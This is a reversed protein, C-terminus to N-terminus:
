LRVKAKSVESKSGSVRALKKDLKERERNVIWNELLALSQKLISNQLTSTSTSPAFVLDLFKLHELLIAGSRKKKWSAGQELFFQFLNPYYIADWLVGGRGQNIKAGGDLLLHPLEFVDFGQSYNLVPKDFCSPFVVAWQLPTLHLFNGEFNVKIGSSVLAKTIDNNFSARIAMGLLKPFDKSTELEDRLSPNNLIELSVKLGVRKLRYYQSQSLWPKIASNQSISAKSKTM